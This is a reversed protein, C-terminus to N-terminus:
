VLDMWVMAALVGAAFWFSYGVMRDWFAEPTEFEEPAEGPLVRKGERM